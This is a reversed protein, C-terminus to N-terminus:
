PHIAVGSRGFISSWFLQQFSGMAAFEGAAVLLKNKSCRSFIGFSGVSIQEIDFVWPGVKGL